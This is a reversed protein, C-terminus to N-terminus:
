RADPRAVKLMEFIERVQDEGGLEQFQGTMGAFLLWFEKKSRHRLKLAYTPTVGYSSCDITGVGRTIKQDKLLLAEIEFDAPIRWVGTPPEDSGGAVCSLRQKDLEFVLKVPKHRTSTLQRSRDDFEVLREIVDDARMSNGASRVSLSVAAALLAAILLVATLEILSFGRM